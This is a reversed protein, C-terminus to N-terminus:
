ANNEGYACVNKFYEFCVKSNNCISLYSAENFVHHETLDTALEVRKSMKNTYRTLLEAFVSRDKRSLSLIGEKTIMLLEIYTAIYECRVSSSCWEIPHDPNKVPRRDLLFLQYNTTQEIESTLDSLWKSIEPFNM